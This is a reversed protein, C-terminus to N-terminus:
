CTVGDDVTVGDVILIVGVDVVDAICVAYIGHVVSLLVLSLSYLRLLIFWYALLLAVFLLLISLLAHMDVCGFMRM